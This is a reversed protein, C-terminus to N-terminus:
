FPPSDNSASQAPGTSWPNASSQQGWANSAPPASQAPSQQGNGGSRNARAMKGTAWKLSPGIEDVNIETSSGKSGDAREFQRVELDGRVIVRMGKQLTEAVNEAMQRWAACRYFSSPGEKFENTAKDFKRSNVAITFNVVAAGSPTFKLEPEDTLNGVLTVHNDSM